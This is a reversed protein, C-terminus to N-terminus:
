DSDKKMLQRLNGRYTETRGHIADQFGDLIADRIQAAEIREKKKASFMAYSNVQPQM